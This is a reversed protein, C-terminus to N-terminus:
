QSTPPAAGVILTTIILTTYYQARQHEEQDRSSRDRKVSEQLEKWEKEEDVGEEETSM